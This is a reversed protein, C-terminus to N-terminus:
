AARNGFDYPGKTIIPIEEFDESAPPSPLAWELTAGGWPNAPAKAGKFAGYLLNAAMIILGIVLVFSGISAILQLESFQPLYEYYRRPMGQWGMVLMPFYFFNFSVFMILWAVVALRKDYMRGNMKPLW